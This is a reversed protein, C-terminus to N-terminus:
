NVFEWASGGATKRKGHCCNSISGKWTGTQRSAESMSEYIIGTKICRVPQKSRSSGSGGSGGSNANYGFREDNSRFLGITINELREAEEKTLNDFLVEHSFNTWGFKQIAAGFRPQRLYNSEKWRKYTKQCSMGIYVKGDILNTHKYVYYDKM